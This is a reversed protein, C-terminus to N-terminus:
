TGTNLYVDNNEAVQASGGMKMTGRVLVGNAYPAIGGDAVNDNILGGQMDLTGRTYIYVGGGGNSMHSTNGKIFSGAQMTLTGDVSVGGGREVGDGGKAHNGTILSGTDLTVNASEGVYLGGGSNGVGAYGGTIKLKTITVPVSTQITLTTGTGSENFEGDLCDTPTGEGDHENKGKLTISAAKGNLDIGLEQAGTLTGDIYITYDESPEEAAKIIELAASLNALPKAM